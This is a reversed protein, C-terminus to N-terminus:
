LLSTWLFFLPTMEENRKFYENELGITKKNNNTSKNAQDQKKPPKTKTQTHAQKNNHTKQPKNKM